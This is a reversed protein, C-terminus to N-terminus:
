CAPAIDITQFMEILTISKRFSNSVPILMFSLEGRTAATPKNPLNEHLANIIFAHYPNCIRTPRNSEPERRWFKRCYSLQYLAVKGLNLDLTRSEEAAGFHFLSLAM